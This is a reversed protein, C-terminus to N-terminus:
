RWTQNLMHLVIFANSHNELAKQITCLLFQMETENQQQSIVNSLNHVDIKSM